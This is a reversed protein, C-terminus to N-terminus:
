PLRRMRRGFEIGSIRYDWLDVLAAENLAIWDCVARLDAASLHGSLLRPTPRVAVTALNGPLMRTGHTECVKVHVDHRARGRESAWVVMPLGTDDPFLNVMQYFDSDAEPESVARDEMARDREGNAHLAVGLKQEARLLAM